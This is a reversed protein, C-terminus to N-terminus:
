LTSNLLLFGALRVISPSKRWRVELLRLKEVGINGNANGFTRRSTITRYCKGQQVGSMCIEM